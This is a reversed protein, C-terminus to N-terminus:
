GGFVQEIATEQSEENFAPSQGADRVTQNQEVAGNSGENLEEEVADSDEYRDRSTSQSGTSTSMLLFALIIAAIGMGLLMKNSIGFTSGGLLSGGEEGGEVDDDDAPLDVEDVPEEDDEDADTSADEEPEEEEVDEPEGGDTELDEDPQEDEDDANALTPEAM